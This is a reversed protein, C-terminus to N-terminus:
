LVHIAESNPNRRAARNEFIRLRDEKSTLFWTECGCLIFEPCEDKM